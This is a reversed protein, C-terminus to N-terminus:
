EEVAAMRVLIAQRDFLSAFARATCALTCVGTCGPSPRLFTESRALLFWWSPAVEGSFEPYTQRRVTKVLALNTVQLGCVGSLFSISAVDQRATGFPLGVIYHFCSDTM